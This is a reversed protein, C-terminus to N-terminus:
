GSAISQNSLISSWGLKELSRVVQDYTPVEPVFVPHLDHNLIAQFFPEFDINGDGVALHEDWGGHNDTLHVYRLHKGLREVWGKLPVRSFMNAHGTDLCAKLSPNNVADLLDAVYDPCTDWMNELVISTKAAEILPLLDTWFRASEQVWRQPYSPHRLTPNFQTHLVLYDAGLVGAIELVQAYREQTVQVLRPEPSVPNLDLFPGHLSLGGKVLGRNARYADVRQQWDGDLVRPYAFDDVEIGIRGDRLAQGCYDREAGSLQVRVYPQAIEAAATIM